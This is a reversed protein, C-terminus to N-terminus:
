SAPEINGMIYRVFIMGDYMDYINYIDNIKKQIADKVYSMDKIEKVYLM